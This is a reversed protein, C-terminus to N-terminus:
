GSASWDGSTDIDFEKVIGGGSGSLSGSSERAPPLPDAPKVIYAESRLGVPAPGRVIGSISGCFSSKQSAATPSPLVDLLTAPLNFTDAQTPSYITRRLSPLSTRSDHRDLIGSTQMPSLASPLVVTLPPVSAPAAGQASAGPSSAAGAGAGDPAPSLPPLLGARQPQLTPSSAQQHQQQQQQAHLQEKKRAALSSFGPGNPKLPTNFPSTTTTGNDDSDSTFTVSREGERRLRKAVRERNNIRELTVEKRLGKVEAALEKHRDLLTQTSELMMAHAKSAGCGM